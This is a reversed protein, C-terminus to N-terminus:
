NLNIKLCKICAVDSNEKVYDVRVIMMDVLRKYLLIYITYILNMKLCYRGFDTNDFRQKDKLVM